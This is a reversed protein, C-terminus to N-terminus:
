FTQLANWAEFTLANDIISAFIDKGYANVFTDIEAKKQGHMIPLVAIKPNIIEGAVKRVATIVDKQTSPNSENDFVIIVEQGEEQVFGVRWASIGPLGITPFGIQVAIDAKIEGETILIRKQGKALHYNYPYLAGRYYVDGFPSKYKIEDNPDLSRARIDTIVRHNKFYPFTIRNALFAEHQANALGAEKAIDSRYMPATGIPCYGIMLKKITEDNFGRKYLFDLSQKDLASHYYWAAQYYLERIQDVNESRIRQKGTYAKGDREVYHCTPSFCYAMGNRPTVYFNDKGCKPCTTKYSRKSAM